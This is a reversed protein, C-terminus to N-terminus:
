DSSIPSLRRAAERIRGPRQTLREILCAGGSLALWVVGWQPGDGAVWAAVPAAVWISLLYYRDLLHGFSARGAARRLRAILRFPGDAAVLVHTLRWVVLLGLFFFYLERM